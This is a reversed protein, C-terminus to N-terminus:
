VNLPNDEPLKVTLTVSAPNHLADCVVVNIVGFPNEIILILVTLEFQLLLSPCINM